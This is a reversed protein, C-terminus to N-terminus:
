RAKKPNEETQEYVFPAQYFDESMDMSKWTVKPLEEKGTNTDLCDDDYEPEKIAEFMDWFSDDVGYNQTDENDIPNDEECLSPLSGYSSSDESSDEDRKCLDPISGHSSEEDM